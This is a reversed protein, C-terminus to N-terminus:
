GTSREWPGPCGFEVWVMKLWEHIHPRESWFNLNEKSKFHTANDTGQVLRNRAGADDDTLPRKPQLQRKLEEVAKEAADKEKETELAVKNATKARANAQELKMMAQLVNPADPNVTGASVADAAAKKALAEDCNGHRDQPLHM